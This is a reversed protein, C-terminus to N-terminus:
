WWSIPDGVYIDTEDRTENRSEGGLHLPYPTTSNVGMERIDIIGSSNQGKVVPQAHLFIAFVSLIMLVSLLRKMTDGKPLPTQIQQFM